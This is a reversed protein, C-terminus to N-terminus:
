RGVAAPDGAVQLLRGAVGVRDVARDARSKRQLNGARLIPVSHVLGAVSRQDSDERTAVAPAGVGVAATEPNQSVNGIPHGSTGVVIVACSEDRKEVASDAHEEVVSAAGCGSEFYGPDDM